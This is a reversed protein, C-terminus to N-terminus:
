NVIVDERQRNISTDDLQHFQETGVLEPQPVPLETITTSHLEQVPRPTHEADLEPKEYRVEEQKKDIDGVPRSSTLSLVCACIVLLSSELQAPISYKALDYSPDASSDAMIGIVVRVITVVVVLLGLIISGGIWARMRRPMHRFHGAQALPRSLIILNIGLNSIDFAEDQQATSYCYGGDRPDWHKSIPICSFLNTALFGVGWAYVIVLLTTTMISKRYPPLVRRYFYVISLKAFTSAIIMVLGNGYLLKLLEFLDIPPIFAIHEGLSYRAAALINIVGYSIVSVLAFIAMYDDIYWSSANSGRARLRLAVLVLAALPFIVSIAINGAGLSSTM